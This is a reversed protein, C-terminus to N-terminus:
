LSPEVPQHLAASRATSSPASLAITLSNSPCSRPPAFRSGLVSIENASLLFGHCCRVLCPRLSNPAGCRSARTIWNPPRQRACGRRGAEPQTPRRPPPPHFRSANISVRAALLLHAHATSHLQHTRGQRANPVNQAREPITNRITVGSRCQLFRKAASRRAACAIQPPMHRGVPGLGIKSPHTRNM